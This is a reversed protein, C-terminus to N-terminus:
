IWQTEKFGRLGSKQNIDMFNQLFDKDLIFTMIVKTVIWSCLCIYQQDFGTVFNILDQDSTLTM